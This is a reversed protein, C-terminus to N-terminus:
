KGLKPTNLIYKKKKDTPSITGRTCCLRQHRWLAADIICDLVSGLAVGAVNIVIVLARDFSTM